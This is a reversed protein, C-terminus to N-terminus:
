LLLVYKMFEEKSFVIYDMFVCMGCYVKFCNKCFGDWCEKCWFVVDLWDGNCICLGCIKEGRMLFEVDLLDMFFM